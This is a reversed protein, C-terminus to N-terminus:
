REPGDRTTALLDCVAAASLRSKALFGMAPSQAVLDAFDEEAHTSILILSSEVDADDNLQRCVDFGSEGGLNIDVLVVEPRLQEALRKAQEGTSAVGVVELGDRELLRRAVGLFEVNDDVLLARTPM